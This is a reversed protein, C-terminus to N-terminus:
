SLGDQIQDVMTNVATLGSMVIYWPAPDLYVVQDSEWAATQAVVENDLIQEATETGEGTAADRDVVFMWEPDTELLFEFSVPDGHTAAEVDEIAPTVGLVDHLWGFRSGPGFATVEGGSTLVILGTGADAAADQTEAIKDDIEALAAEVEDEKGFIQGLTEANQQFSPIYDAWDLTLDITPAIEALEPYAESSRNAVIILDPEAAEIATYDPEFLTGANLYEDGEYASLYSPLNGKAVGAVEVGLADLTDLSALDLVIVTEPNTDVETEGQAHEITLTEPVAAAASEESAAPTGTACGALAAATTLALSAAILPRITRM